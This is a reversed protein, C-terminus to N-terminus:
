LDYHGKIEVEDLNLKDIIDELIEKNYTMLLLLVGGWCSPIIIPLISVEVDFYNKILITCEDKDSKELIDDIIKSDRENVYGKLNQLFYGIDTTLTFKTNKPNNLSM